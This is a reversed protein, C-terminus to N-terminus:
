FMSHHINNRWKRFASKGWSPWPRAQAEGLRRPATPPTRGRSTAVCLRPVMRAWVWGDPCNRTSMLSGPIKKPMHSGIQRWKLHTRHGDNWIFKLYDFPSKKEQSKDPAQISVSVAVKFQEYNREAKDEAAKQLGSTLYPTRKSILFTKNNVFMSRSIIDLINLRPNLLGYFMKGVHKPSIKNQDLALM